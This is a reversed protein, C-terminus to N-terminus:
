EGGRLTDALTREAHKMQARMLEELEGEQRVLREVRESLRGNQPAFHDKLATALQSETQRRYDALRTEIERVQRDGENRVSESDIRGQDQNPALIGIRLTTHVFRTRERGEPYAVLAAISESDEILLDLRPGAVHESEGKYSNGHDTYEQHTEQHTEQRDFTM